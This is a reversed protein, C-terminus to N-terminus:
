NKRWQESKVGFLYGMVSSIAATTWSDIGFARLVIMGILMMAVLWTKPIDPLCLKDSTM